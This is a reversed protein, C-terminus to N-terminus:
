DKQEKLVPTYVQITAMHTITEHLWTNSLHLVGLRVCLDLALRILVLRCGISGPSQCNSFFRIVDLISTWITKFSISLGSAQTSGLPYSELLTEFLFIQLIQFFTFVPHLITRNEFPIQIKSSGNIMNPNKKKSLADCSVAGQFWGSDEPFKCDSVKNVLVRKLKSVLANSLHEASRGSSMRDCSHWGTASKPPVDDSCTLLCGATISDAAISDVATSAAM